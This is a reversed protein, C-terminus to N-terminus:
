RSHVWLHFERRLDVVRPDIVFSMNTDWDETVLYPCVEEGRPTRKESASECRFSVVVLRSGQRVCRDRVIYHFGVTDKLEPAHRGSAEKGCVDSRM